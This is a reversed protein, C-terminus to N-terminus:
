IEETEEKATSGASEDNAVSETTGEPGIGGEEFDDDDYGDDDYQADVAKKSLSIKRNEEDIDTVKVTIFQGISLEDEPKAIHQSAIQSIHVLGDIGEELNVFAGFAAMRVVKGEVLCGVPYKKAIDNWPNNNADKLTLSIKNKEPNIDIVTVTVEEGVSLVDAVKRVRRWALESIHVLGDVGGLDIFAGFDTIRSVKGTIKQGIELTAFLEERRQKQEQTALEKRGAVIRRKSKDFELINFNFEKGKFVSFDEV